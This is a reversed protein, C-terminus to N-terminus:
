GVKGKKSVVRVCHRQNLNKCGFMVLEDRNPIISHYSMPFYQRSSLKSLTEPM